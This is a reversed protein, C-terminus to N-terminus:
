KAKRRKKPVWIAYLGCTPCKVTRHTRSKQEAWPHWQIYGEPCVTHRIRDPCTEKTYPRAKM